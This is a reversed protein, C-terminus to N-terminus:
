DIACVKVSRNRYPCRLDATAQQQQLVVWSVGYRARLRRFDQLQFNQWGSQAQEQTWWEPAMAPFMSVAGNDTANDALMSRQAIARFGNEDEGPIDMYNPDLAFIADVPTYSRAWEFALVWDNRSKAGPWEIHPSAPFLDRQVWFMAACLPLFLALWRWWRNRLVFEALLGGSFLVFLIYVLYLCRMPQLRALTEFRAPVSVILAAVTFLIEYVILSRSLLELNRRQKARAIRSFWWLIVIPGVVGLWEYWHWRTLYFYSHALAVEHYAPPPPDLLGLPFLFALAGAGVELKRMCLLMVCFSITFVAMLPHIAASFLLLVGATLYKGDLLRTIAWVGAFATLNRPSLYQDMLYLATGAVPLTLLTAVLAVAAYRSATRDFCKEALKLCAFLLLFISAIQWFFLVGVLPLHSLKVSAAILQPFLTLGAHSDFFQANFPFLEPNLLKEVPPLYLAADEVWPHYGHVFLAGATLLLLFFFRQAVTQIEETFFTYQLM